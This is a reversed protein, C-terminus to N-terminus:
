AALVQRRRSAEAALLRNGSREARRWITDESTRDQTVMAQAEVAALRLRDSPHCKGFHEALDRAGDHGMGVACRLFTETSGNSLVASIHGTDLDFGYQDFWRQDRRSTMVNLSISLSEPPLQSHVDLHARYHMLKGPTLNSREIFRLGADEGVVGAVSEYDYEYYDSGYGPGFYGVTLFDFNHDHPMGYVFSSASSAKFARDTVAPWINARLFLGDGPVALIIAQAGYASRDGGDRHRGSLEEVLMDGLFDRNNGLRRLWSAAGLLSDEDAPHFGASAIANSCEALSCVDTSHDKILRPM